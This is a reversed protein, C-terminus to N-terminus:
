LPLCAQVYRHYGGDQDYTRALLFGFLPGAPKEGLREAEQLLGAFLHQGFGWREGADVCTTLVRSAPLEVTGETPGELEAYYTALMAHGWFYHPERADPFYAVPPLCVSQNANVFAGAADFREDLLLDHEERRPVYVIGPLEHVAFSALRGEVDRLLERYRRLTDLAMTQYRLNIEVQREQEDVVAELDDLDSHHLIDRIQALSFGMAQYRKCEWLLNIQWDDYYRYGNGEDVQPQIIGLREYHRLTDRKIDFARCIDKQTYRVRATGETTLM